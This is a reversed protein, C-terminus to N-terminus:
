HGQRWTQIRQKGLDTVYVTGDDATAVAMTHQFQGDKEGQTGFSTLFSGDENFKQIRHNYFDAVFLNNSSDISISTVTAFWGNFPGFINMAFPGGWKRLIGTKSFVQIRDNFGDAVYLNDNADLAVDTPYNFEGAWIGTKGTQGWQEIVDGKATLHQIRQNYFDAIYLSGDTAVTVGGPSKLEGPANGPKGISRLPIGDLSFVQIRDNWYDAVYLQNLHISLNMPRGLQGPQTGKEGFQRLFHGDLDFVQIRANRADSVFVESQSIAIGTPDNFQGPASGQQGWAKVFHYEPEIPAPIWAVWIIVMLVLIVAIFVSFLKFLKKLM